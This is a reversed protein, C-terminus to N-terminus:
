AVAYGIVGNELRSGDIFITLGPRGSLQAERMAAAEEDIATTAELPTAVELLVTEEIPITILREIRRNPGTM